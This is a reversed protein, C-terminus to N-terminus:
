VKVSGEARLKDQREAVLEEMGYYEIAKQKLPNTSWESWEGTYPNYGCKLPKSLIDEPDEVYARCDTCIYRFECDMCVHIKDKNIYWLSKFSANNLVDKFKTNEINGFSKVMSPCNKIEGNFDISIKGNLCTNYKLAEMYTNLSPNFYGFIIGCDLHSNMIDTTTIIDKNLNSSAIRENRPANFFVISYCKSTQQIYETLIGLIDEKYPLYISYGRHAVDELFRILITLYELTHNKYLRLSIYPLVVDMVTSYLHQINLEHDIDIICNSVEFPISWDNLLDPFVDIDDLFVGIENDILFTLYEIANEKDNEYVKIIESHTKGISNKVFDIFSSPLHFVSERQFDILAVNKKGSVVKTTSFLMFKKKSM